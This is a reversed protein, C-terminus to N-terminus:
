DDMFNQLTQLQKLAAVAKCHLASGKAQSLPGELLVQVVAQSISVRGLLSAVVNDNDEKVAQTCASCLLTYWDQLHSLLQGPQGVYLNTAEALSFGTSITWHYVSGPYTLVAYGPMQLFRKVGLEKLLPLPLSCYLHKATLAALANPGHQQELAAEFRAASAAPVVYWIKPAGYTMINYAGLLADEVHFNTRTFLSSLIALGCSVGTLNTAPQHAQHCHAMSAGCGDDVCALGTASASSWEHPTYPFGAAIISEGKPGARHCPLPASPTAHLSPGAGVQAPGLASEWKSLDVQTISRSKHSTHLSTSAQHAYPVSAQAAPSPLDGKVWAAMLAEVVCSYELPEESRLSWAMQLAHAWGQMCPFLAKVALEAAGGTDCFDATSANTRQEWGRLWAKDTQHDCKMRVAPNRVAAVQRPELDHLPGQLMLLHNDQPCVPAYERLLGMLKGASEAEHSLLQVASERSLQLLDLSHQLLQRQLAPNTISEFSLMLSFIGQMAKSTGKPHHTNRQQRDKLFAQYRAQQEMGVVTRVADGIPQGVRREAPAGWIEQFTHDTAADSAATQLPLPAQTASSEEGVKLMEDGQWPSASSRMTQLDQCSAHAAVDHSSLRQIPVPVRQQPARQNALQRQQPVLNSHQKAQLVQGSHEQAAQIKCRQAPLQSYPSGAARDAKQGQKQPLAAGQLQLIDVNHQFPVAQAQQEVAKLFMPEAQTQSDHSSAWDESATEAKPGRWSSGCISQGQHGCSSLDHKRSASAMQGAPIAHLAQMDHQKAQEDGFQAAAQQEAGELGMASTHETFVSRFGRKGKCRDSQHTYDPAREPSGVHSLKRKLRNNSQVVQSLKFGAHMPGATCAPISSLAINPTTSAPQQEPVSCIDIQEGSTSTSSCPNQPLHTCPLDTNQRDASTARDSQMKSKTLRSTDQESDDM